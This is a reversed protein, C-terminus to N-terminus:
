TSAGLSEKRKQLQEFKICSLLPKQFGQKPAYPNDDNRSPRRLPNEGHFNKGWGCHKCVQQGPNM